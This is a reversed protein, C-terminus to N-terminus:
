EWQIPENPGKITCGPKPGHMKWFAEPLKQFHKQFLESPIWSEGSPLSVATPMASCYQRNGPIALYQQHYDEAQWYKSLPAIETTIHSNKGAEKLAASYAKQSALALSKQDENVYYIGSRYQTGRDNGQGNGQTPDHSEWFTRLLDAYSIQTEDYIVQVAEAHGTSGSCVQNYSPNETKGNAYGVSTSYIGKPLRWFQKETGWFCGTAFVARSLPKESLEEAKGFDIPTKLVYHLGPTVTMSTFSGM